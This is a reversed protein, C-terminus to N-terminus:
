RFRRSERVVWVIILALVAALAIVGLPTLRDGLLPFGGILLFAIGISCAIIVYRQWPKLVLWALENQRFYNYGFAILAAVFLVQIILESSVAVAGFGEQSVFVLGAIAAIIVFNRVGVWNIRMGRGVRPHSRRRAPGGARGPPARRPRRRPPRAGSATGAQEEKDGVILLYPIKALEGDRIRRGVSESRGDVEVRLGEARLRARVAEAYVAHRDSVPLVRAQEPALWLPFDGGTNEILIGLFREISGTIARHIMVPREETDDASTYTLDFREPFNFDLQCTGLQWARGMVDTVQFDIKPGYFAGDGEKVGYPRDGLAQRLAEEAHDWMEKTGTAKEPRTSLKLEM